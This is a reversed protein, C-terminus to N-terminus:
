SRGPASCGASRNPGCRPRVWAVHQPTGEDPRGKRTPYEAECDHRCRRRALHRLGIRLILVPRLVPQSASGAAQEAPWSRALDNFAVDAGIAPAFKKVQRISSRSRHQQSSGRTTATYPELLRSSRAAPAASSTNFLKEALLGAKIGGKSGEQRRMPRRRWSLPRKRRVTGAAEGLENDELKIRALM